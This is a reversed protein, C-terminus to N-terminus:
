TNKESKQQQIESTHAVLYVYDQEYNTAYIGYGTKIDGKVQQRIKKYLDGEEELKNKNIAYYYVMEEIEDLPFFLKKEGDDTNFIGITSITNINRPPSLMSTVPEIHSYVNIMHM